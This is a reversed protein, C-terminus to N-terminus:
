IYCWSIPCYIGASTHPYQMSGLGQMTGHGRTDWGPTLPRARGLCPCSGWVRALVAGSDATQQRSVRVESSVSVGGCCESDDSGGGGCWSAHLDIEIEFHGPM